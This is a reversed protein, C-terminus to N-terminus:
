YRFRVGLAYFRGNRDYFVSNAANSQVIANPTLPPDNDFVNDLKAFITWGPTLEYSGSLDLYTRSPVGNDDIDVGEVFLNNYKGGQVYRVLAGLSLTGLRYNTQFNGRWHPVGGTAGTQGALDMPVGNTVTTLEDIYTGLLRFDIDAAGLTFAYTAEIDLGSTKLQQANILSANVQSILNTVPDRTVGACLSQQQLVYCGDVIQQGTYTAIADDVDISYYDISSRFGPLWRPEYIFGATRTDAKEPTLNPNGGTLQVTQRQTNTLPDTLSNIFQSQGSFLENINPARIDRSLTGRLRWEQTPSYNLGAKWTTVNGSTSYDTLRAAANLELLDVFALQKALPVVLEVYGEKVDYKGRLPQANISRWGRAVSIADSRSAVEEERIELGTAVSVPGAWLSFPDGRLNIAWLNQTQESDMTSTGTYYDVAAQSISGAGFVNAPVCGNNPNTLTSRCVARGSAPDIVADVAQLWNAQIRNHTSYSSYTNKSRQFYGDWNWTRGFHGEAGLAYREVETTIHFGAEEDELNQRGLRFSTLNNALMLDRISTPLFANTRQITLTGNDYNETLNSFINAKAYLADAYVSVADAIEYSARGYASRRKIEPFVNARPGFVGGDGGTMYTGGVNTGFNFPQPVGNPGFQIGALPGSTAAVVGGPTMQSFRSDPLIMMRPQGNGPQYAPNTLVAHLGRGWSRSDQNLQGSNSYYDGAIVVHGRNDAFGSGYALSMGPERLDGYKTEGYQVDGKLGTFQNDLFVNVVGSVADSGYAASAGGTVIEVRNILAAPLVNVDVGGTPDTAAFRRGDVLLLTRNPGLARLDLNSAGVPQSSQGINQNAKLAPMDLLLESVNRIAKAELELKSLSTVPTPADFGAIRTGTVVVESLPAEAPATGTTAVEAAHVDQAQTVHAVAHSALLLAVTRALACNASVSRVLM